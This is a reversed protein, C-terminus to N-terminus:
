REALRRLRALYSPMGEVDKVEKKTLIVLQMRIEDVVKTENAKFAEKLRRALQGGKRDWDTLVVVERWSRSLEECFSFLSMGKSLTVVNTHIGLTALAKADRMGEVVVPMRGSLERLDDVVKVIEEYREGPSLL